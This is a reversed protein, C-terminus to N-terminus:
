SSRPGSHARYFLLSAFIVVHFANLPPIVLVASQSCPVKMPAHTDTRHESLGVGISHPLQQYPVTGRFDCNDINNEKYKYEFL